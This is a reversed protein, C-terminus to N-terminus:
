LSRGKGKSRQKGMVKPTYPPPMDRQVEKAQYTKNNGKVPKQNGSFQPNVKLGQKLLKSGQQVAQQKAKAPMTSVQQKKVQTVVPTKAAKVPKQERVQAPKQKQFRQRLQQLKESGKKIWNM